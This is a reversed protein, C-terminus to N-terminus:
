NQLKRKVKKSLKSLISNFLKSEYEDSINKPVFIEDPFRMILDSDSILKKSELEDYKKKIHKKNRLIEFEAKIKSWLFGKKLYFFWVLIEIILLSPYMKRYTDKSYHTLLCYRRNRELWFFKKPSWKLSYSEAHYIVSMPVYYSRIDLQSARWGLDLDDHYLFLFPDFLGIKKLTEASTFLCTGSAYGIEQIETDKSDDYSGKDKAFGFGFVHIMNGTSQLIKKDYLSLIKPQYLGQGYKNYASILHTLWGPTVITDPNLIVLFEGKAQRIGVNNGECYGLNEKNEIIRIQPFMEKCKLHSQDHSANDVVIIEFNNYQTKLVSEVCNFLLKGANYNLIIISVFQEKKSL